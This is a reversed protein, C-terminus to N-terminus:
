GHLRHALARLSPGIRVSRRDRDLQMALELDLLSHM